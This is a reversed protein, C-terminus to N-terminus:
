IIVKIRLQKYKLFFLKKIKKIKEYLKSTNIYFIIKLFIFFINNQHMKSSFVSQFVVTVVSEFM